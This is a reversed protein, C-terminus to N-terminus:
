QTLDRFSQLGFQFKVEEKPTFLVTFRGNDEIINTEVKETTGKVYIQISDGKIQKGTTDRLVVM